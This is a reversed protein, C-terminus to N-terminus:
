GHVEAAVVLGADVVGDEVGNAVGVGAGGRGVAVVLPARPGLRPQAVDELAVQRRIEHHGAGGGVRQGQRRATRRVTSDDAVVFRM